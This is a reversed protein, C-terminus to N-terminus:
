LRWNCCFRQFFTCHLLYGLTNKSFFINERSKEGGGGVWKGITRERESGQQGPHGSQMESVGLPKAHLTRSVDTM